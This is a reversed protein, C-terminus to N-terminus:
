LSSNVDICYHAIQVIHVTVFYFFFFFLNHAHQIRCCRFIVDALSVAVALGLLSLLDRLLGCVWGVVVPLWSLSSPTYWHSDATM